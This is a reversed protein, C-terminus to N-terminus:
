PTEGKSETWMALVSQALTRVSQSTVDLWTVKKNRRFWAMQRRVLQWTKSAVIEVYESASLKGQLLAFGEPVGITRYAQMSPSLGADRLRKMEERLGCELMERLRAAIAARHVTRECCLGVIVFDEQMPKAERQLTSIPRGTTEYVELARVIRLRDNLHIRSAADPDVSQLREYLKPLSANALRIRLADDRAPGEFIGRLVASLYLTGGGVLMPVHGRGRIEPLLQEVDQRFTMADYAGDMPVRDILHHPIGIRAEPTPKDTVLDLGQFFARSDASIIEGQIRAAVDIAVATKGTATPGLIVLVGSKGPTV